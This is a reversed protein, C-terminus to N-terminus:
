NVPSVVSLVDGQSNRTFRYTVENLRWSVAQGFQDKEVEINNRSIRGTDLFIAAKGTKRVWVDIAFLAQNLPEPRGARFSLIGQKITSESDLLWRQMMSSWFESKSQVFFGSPIDDRLYNSPTSGAQAILQNRRGLYWADHTAFRTDVDHNLEHNIVSRFTTIVRIIGNPFRWSEISSRGIALNAIYAVGPLVNTDTAANTLSTSYSSQNDTMGTLMSFGSFSPEFGNKFYCGISCFPRNFTQNFAIAGVNIWGDNMITLLDAMDQEQWPELTLGRSNLEYNSFLVTSTSALITQAIPSLQLADAIYRQRDPSPASTGRAALIITRRLAAFATSTDGVTRIFEAHPKLLAALTELVLPATDRQGVNQSTGGVIMWNLLNLLGRTRNSLISDTSTTKSDLAASALDQDLVKGIGRAFIPRYFRSNWPGEWFIPRYLFEGLRSTFTKTSLYRVLFNEWADPTERHGALFIATASDIATQSSSRALVDLHRALRDFPAPYQGVTITQTGEVNESTATIIATGLGVATVRGNGDITAVSPVSSKWAVTRNRLATGSSDRLDATFQTSQGIILATIAPSIAVTRVPVLAVAISVAASKGEVTATVTATGPSNSTVLGTATVSVISPTSSSWTVARGSLTGGTVDKLTVGLQSNQGVYLSLQMLSPTITSVPIPQIALTISGSRGDSTATITVPEATGGRVAGATVLGEGSVTAYADNSSSWSIPRGALSRGSSGIVTATIQATAAYPLTKINTAVSVSSATEPSTPKEGACATCAVTVAIVLNQATRKLPYHM